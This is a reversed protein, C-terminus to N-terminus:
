NLEASEREPREKFLSNNGLTIASLPLNEEWSNMMRYFVQRNNALYPKAKNPYRSNECQTFYALIRTKESLLLWWLHETFFINKSIECFECSFM